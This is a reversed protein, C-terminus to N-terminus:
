EESGIQRNTYDVLFLDDLDELLEIEWPALSTATLRLFADIDSWELPQKGFGSSGKRRRIRLYVRWLYALAKPLPSCVLAREIKARREPNRTRALLGELL